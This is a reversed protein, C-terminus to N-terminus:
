SPRDCRREVPAAAAVGTEGGRRATGLRWVIGNSRVLQLANKGPDIVFAQAFARSGLLALLWPLQIAFEM